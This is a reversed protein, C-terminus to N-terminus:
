TIKLELPAPRLVNRISIQGAVNKVFGEVAAVTQPDAKEFAAFPNGEDGSTRIAINIPIAGLYPVKLRAAAKEVGGHGFIDYRKGTDPAIFYSMNEVMGLIDVSLQQYMRLARVADALAVDQPTCVVVAGTLPISQSLTLPVDGTGPPLDVILYDLAGWDVQDLFQKVVGHVMPGRWIVAREPEVMFGMSIVRVGHSEIPVIKEGRVMPREGELGMMKPISPGFVDADMLGVSAGARKLGAALLVAATSKGVGGKGAGVAVINKVDPLQSAPKVTARVQASWEISVDRVGAIARVERQVDRNITDKLPCAPTTLEVGITVRGDDIAVNKIMNLTVLDKHLEPDNVRRLADLVQEKTVASM